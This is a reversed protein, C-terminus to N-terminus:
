IIRFPAAAEQRGACLLAGTLLTRFGKNEREKLDGAPGEPRPSRVRASHVASQLGWTSRM